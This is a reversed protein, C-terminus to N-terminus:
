RLSPAGSQEFIVCQTQSVRPPFIIEQKENNSITILSFLDILDADVKLTPDDLAGTFWDRYFKLSKGDDPSEPPLISLSRRYQDPHASDVLILGFIGEPYRDAYVRMLIGGWSRGVLIYPGGIGANELLTHLEDVVTLVLRPEPGPSSEGLGARDYSCTRTVKGVEPQVYRWTEGVDDWGAELIVTPTGRGECNLYVEYGRIDVWGKFTSPAEEQIVATNTGPPLTSTGTITPVIM